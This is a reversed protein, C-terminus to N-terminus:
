FAIATRSRRGFRTEVIGFDETDGKLGDAWFDIFKFPVSLEVTASLGNVSVDTPSLIKGYAQGIMQKFM